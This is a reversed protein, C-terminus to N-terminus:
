RVNSARASDRRIAQRGWFNALAPDAAIGFQAVFGFLVRYLRTDDYYGTRALNYFRDVGNLAWERVLEVTITGRSTELDATVTAPARSSWVANTADNLAARRQAPTLAASKAGRSASQAVSTELAGLSLIAALVAVHTLNPM